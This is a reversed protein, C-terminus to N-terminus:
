ATRRRKHPSHGKRHGGRKHKCSNAVVPEFDRVKGNQATFEALAKRKTHKACLNQSNEILSKSGGAMELVFKSVPADPVLEFSNRIGDERGSDIKGVLHVEIQGRLDAVLAPLEYGFGTVLYVNGELPADLLPSWAKAHGYISRAPCSNSELQPRGCTKDLHANAVFSSHPLTVQAQAVNAEGAKMKLTAKLAPFKSRKTGGKLQIALKPKFPLANCGGVQFRQSLPSSQGFVSAASGGIAMPNCSTPNLSFQPRDLKLAISRVDLPIGDIIPPIPDSKATIQTTEPNVFLATRVVVDGLDFPGAVAPTVIVLSLPAGQYPGALYARGSTYYPDPGAGAGVKVKGVESAAPCSPSALEEAGGGDHERSEALSIAAEPCYPVGALKGTLGPPLVTEIKSFEQSGDERVLKFAFPSFQGAQPSETGADFSPANPEAAEAGACSGSVEFEDTPEAPPGSEPASWPTLVSTSEYTGCVSPTRMAGKAGEFLRLKFDEFPLQPNEEFSTTLQGTQPDAHVEGALKVIVGTIPDDVVVYLSLLSGFPNEHAKALYVWGPLPHDVLPSEVEVSGLKSADPCEAPGPTFESPHATGPEYGVQAESCAGLGNASAPNLRMGQPLTVTVDRVDSTATECSLPPGSRCREHQPVHLDVELGSPSDALPTTPRARVSPSFPVANCGDTGPFQSIASTFVGPKQWSDASISTSLAGAQCSTPMRLFPRPGEPSPLDGGGCGLNGDCEMGRLSDHSPDAPVGWLSLTVGTLNVAPVAEQATIVSYDSGTRVSSNLIFPVGRLILFGLSAASGHNPLLNYLPVMFNAGLVGNVGNPQATVTIVGVQSAAPCAASWFDALNCRALARPNGVVGPPLDISIDRAQATPFALSAPRGEPIMARDVENNFRFAGYLGYPRGGAQTFPSADANRPAMAFSELGFPALSASVGSETSAAVTAAAGGSIVASDTVTGPETLGPDVTFHIWMVLTEGPQLPPKTGPYVCTLTGENCLEPQSFGEGSRWFEISSATLGQPLTDTLTIASKTPANGVNRADVFYIDEGSLDGPALNTPQGFLEVEWRPTATAADSAPALALLGLTVALTIALRLTVRDASM